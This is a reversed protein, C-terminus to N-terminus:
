FVSFNGQLVKYGDTNEMKVAMPVEEQRIDFLGVYKRGNVHMFSDSMTPTLPRSGLLVVQDTHVTLKM